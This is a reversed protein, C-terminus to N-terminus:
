SKHLRVLICHTRRKMAQLKIDGNVDIAVLLRVIWTRSIYCQQRILRLRLERESAFDQINKHKCRDNRSAGVIKLRIM